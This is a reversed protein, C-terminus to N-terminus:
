KRPILEIEKVVSTFIPEARKHFVAEPELKIPPNRIEKKEEVPPAKPDVKKPPM